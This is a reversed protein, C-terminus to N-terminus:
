IDVCLIGVWKSVIYVNYYQGLGSNCFFQTSPPNSCFGIFCTQPQFIFLVILTNNWFVSSFLLLFLEFHQFHNGRSLRFWPQPLVFCAFQQKEYAKKKKFFISYTNSQYFYFNLKVFFCQSLWETKFEFYM